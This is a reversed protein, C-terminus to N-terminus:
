TFRASHIITHVQCLSQVSQSVAAPLQNSVELPQLLQFVLCLATFESMAFDRPFYTKNRFFTDKKWPRASRWGWVPAGGSLSVAASPFCKYLISKLMDSKISCCCLCCVNVAELEQCTLVRQKEKHNLVSCGQNSDSLFLSPPSNLFM